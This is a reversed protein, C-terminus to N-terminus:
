ITFFAKVKQTFGKKATLRPNPRHTILDPLVQANESGKAVHQGDKRPQFVVQQGFDEITVKDGDVAVVKVTGYDDWTYARTVNEGVVFKEPSITQTM